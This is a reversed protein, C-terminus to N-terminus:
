TGTRAGARGRHRLCQGFSGPGFPAGALELLLALELVLAATPILQVVGIATGSAGGNRVVALALLWLLAIALWGMWGPTLRGDGVVRKLRAATARVGDRYVLGTRGADYNATVVLRVPAAGHPGSRDPQVPRAAVVNQSAHERTLRRGPSHGTLWDCLFFLLAVLVLAGGLRPHHVMLLSGAIAVLSHWVQALAWNPRLWFTDLDAQRKGSRAEGALWEAARREADTGAGRREFETLRTATQVPRM